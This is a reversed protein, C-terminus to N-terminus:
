GFSRVGDYKGNFWNWFHERGGLGKNQEWMKGRNFDLGKAEEFDVQRWMGGKERWTYNWQAEWEHDASENM